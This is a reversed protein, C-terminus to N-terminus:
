MEDVTGMTMESVVSGEARGMDRLREVERMLEEITRDKDEVAKKLTEVETFDTMESGAAGGGIDNMNKPTKVAGAQAADGFTQSWSGGALDFEFAGSPATVPRPAAGEAMMDAPPPLVLQEEWGGGKVESGGGEGTIEDYLSTLYGEVVEQTESDRVKREEVARGYLGELYEEAVGEDLGKEEEQDEVIVMDDAGGVVVAGGRSALRSGGGRSAGRSTGRSAGRSTGRTGLGDRSQSTGPRLAAPPGIALVDDYGAVEGEEGEKGEQGEQGEEGLEMGAVKDVVDKVEGGRGDGGGIRLPIDIEGVEVKEQALGRRLNSKKVLDEVHGVKIIRHQGGHSILRVLLEIESDTFVVRGKNKEEWAFRLAITIAIPPLSTPLSPPLSFQYTPTGSTAAPYPPSM